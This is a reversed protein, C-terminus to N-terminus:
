DQHIMIDISSVNVMQTTIAGTFTSTSTIELNRGKILGDTAYFILAQM